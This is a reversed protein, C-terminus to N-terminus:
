AGTAATKARAEANRRHDAGPRVEVVAAEDELLGGEAAAAAAVLPCCPEGSVPGAGRPPRVDARHQEVRRGAGPSL